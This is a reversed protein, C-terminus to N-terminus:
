LENIFLIFARTAVKNGAMSPHDDYPDDSYELYNSAGNKTLVDYFDFVYVNDEEYNELWDHALWENFNRANNAETSTTNNRGLPPATVVVFTKDPKTIFYELLDIYIGKANAVTHYASDAPEGKLPNDEIDPVPDSISGGLASNPFCSKFMVIENQDSPPKSLRSYDSNQESESYLESLYISSNPGRFWTWWNGIDTTDGIGDPGWGYNTDSVFYGEEMLAKGLGGNNDALWNEGTSHHIFILRATSSDESEDEPENEETTQETTPEQQTTPSTDDKNKWIWLGFGLAILGFVGVGIYIWIKKM